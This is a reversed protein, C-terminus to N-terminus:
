WKKTGGGSRRRTSSGSRGSSSSSRRASSRSSSFSRRRNSSTWGSSGDDGDDDDGQDGWEGTNLFRVVNYILLAAVGVIGLWVIGPVGTSGSSGDEDDIAGADDDVTPDAVPAVSPDRLVLLGDVVGGTLDGDRFRASMADVAPEWRDELAFGQDAGYYVSAEREVASYMVVVLDPAREFGATWTPCREELQAMRADLGADVTREARVHVDAGLSAATREIAQEVRAADLEHSPDFLAAECGLVDTDAGTGTPVSSPGSVTTASVTSPSATAPPVTSGPGAPPVSLPALALVAGASLGVGAWWAM